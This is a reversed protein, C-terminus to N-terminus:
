ALQQSFDYKEWKRNAAAAAAAAAELLLASCLV